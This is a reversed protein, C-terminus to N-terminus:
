KPKKESFPRIESPGSEEYGPHGETIEPDAHVDQPLVGVVDVSSPSINREHPLAQTEHPETATAPQKSKQPTQTRPKKPQRQSM